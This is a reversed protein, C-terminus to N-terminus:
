PANRTPSRIESSRPAGFLSFARLSMEYQSSEGCACAAAHSTREQVGGLLSAIAMIDSSTLLVIGVASSILSDM